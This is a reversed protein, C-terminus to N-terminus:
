HTFGSPGKNQMAKGHILIHASDLEKIAHKFDTIFQIASQM